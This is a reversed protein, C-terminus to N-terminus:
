ERFSELSLPGSDDSCMGPDSIGSLLWVLHLKVKSCTSFHTSVVDIIQQLVLGFKVVLAESENVVPRELHNYGRDIGFLDKFL